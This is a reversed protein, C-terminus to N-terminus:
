STSVAFNNATKLRWVHSNDCDSDCASQKNKLQRAICSIGYDSDYEYVMIKAIACLLVPSPVLSPVADVSIVSRM